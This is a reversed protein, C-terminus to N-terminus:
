PLTYEKHDCTSNIGFNLTLPIHCLHHSDYGLSPLLFLSAMVTNVPTHNATMAYCDIKLDNWVKTKMNNSLNLYNSVEKIAPELWTYVDAALTHYYPDQDVTPRKKRQLADSTLPLNKMNMPFLTKLRERAGKTGSLRV